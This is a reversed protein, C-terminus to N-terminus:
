RMKFNTTQEEQVTQKAKEINNLTTITYEALLDMLKEQGEMGLREFVFHCNAIAILNQITTESPM